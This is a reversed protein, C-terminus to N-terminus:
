NNRLLTIYGKSVTWNGNTEKVKLLYYYTGEKLGNGSWDNKYGGNSHYVENGWRNFITLFNEPYLELGDIVYTDNKGDGNPTIVNPKTNLIFIEKLDTAINNALNPDGEAATVSATNSIVGSKSSKVKITLMVVAGSEITPVTWLVTNSASSYNAIGKGASHSVYTLGAPLVDTVVVNNSTFLGNNKVLINYDYPTDMGVPTLHDSTKAISLDNQIFAPLEATTTIDGITSLDPTSSTVTVSNSLPKGAYISKAASNPTAVTIEYSVEANSPFLSITQDLNGTGDNNPLTLGTATATWKTITTGLPAIDAVKVNVAASPGTNKVSILYIVDEGPVYSIQAANKLKKVTVLDANPNLLVVTPDDSLTTNPDDSLPDAISNNNGGKAIVSAQNSYRGLNVDAQTLTHKAVVVAIAGPQITAVNAPLVSGADAGADAVVVNTLTTNGTNKVILTYNIVDGAKGGTNNATKTLTISSVQAIVIITPDDSATTSPNDSVKTLNNGKPDKASVNAQNVVTGANIDTQTLIHTATINVVAGPTLTPIFYGSSNPNPSPTPSSALTANADTVEINNLTVNGTNKLVIFYTIVDGVKTGNNNAVKTLALAASTPITTITPNDNNEATGSIDTITNGAPSKSSVNATNTVSGLDKDSQSLTYVRTYTTNGGIALSGPLVINLGLKADTLTVNSLAVNGTNKITFTYTVTNNGSNVVGSKVLAIKGKLIPTTVSASNNAPNPDMALQAADVTVSNTIDNQTYNANVTGMVLLTVSQGADVDAATTFTNATPNYTGGTAQYTVNSLGTPLSETLVIARGALVTATGINRVIIAYTINENVEVGTKDAVKTVALDTIWNPITITVTTTAKNAPDLKDTIQYNLIYVGPLTRPQVIVKGNTPDINIKPNDTSLQTIVVNGVNAQSGGNYTDNALIDMQITGGFFGLITGTDPTAILPTSTVNVTITATKKQGPNLKDEIEYVLTYTGTTTNPAVNVKGTTPDITVNASTSSVQTITVDNLTAPNGNYTDNALINAIATGGTVGNIAGNDNAAVMAPATVTVTVTATKKSGPNLKDEIQYVLNYTGAATGAAVNVKGTTPDITVKPNSTSVQSITVDNLTAPNGNYTDNVLVNAVATGGVLGNVTGSDNTAIMTPAVVTVSVSAQSIKTPDLKDVIKYVLTYVGGPTGPAVNVKGTLVDLTVKPNTTSVQALDVNALTAPSGGNFTDNILVDNVAIGGLVGSVSGSDNNAQIAGSSVTVTIIATAVKSPDLKDTISYDITYVGAPTNPAVTVQGTTVNLTIKGASTNSGPVEAITVDATTPVQSTGNYKDNTLINSIAVGGNVTNATGNDDNAQIAGTTVFVVVNASSTKTPDLKDTITYNINYTGPPTGPAVSVVGTGPTLTVNGGSNNSNETITVAAITAPSGGNFKDNALVNLLSSNGVTSNVTGSDAVAEIIGSSVIVVINATATKTPDQKDTITYNITYTGAPTGPAVNVKGTATNLTVKGLSNNSNEAITVNAITATLNANYSDNVLINAVAEGGTISNAVGNDNVALLNSPCLLPDTTITGSVVIPDCPSTHGVTTVNYTVSTNFIGTITVTKNITNVVYNAPSITGTVFASTASGGYTYVIDTIASGTCITQNQSGGSRILTSPRNVTLTYIASNTCGSANAATTYTIVSTGATVGTVEGTSANVTAVSPTASSWVGGATANALIRILGVCLDGGGTIPSINPRADINLSKSTCGAPAIYSILVSGPAIATVLGTSSVTAIATNSSGWTGGGTANALQLTSGECLSSNGPTIPTALTSSKINIDIPTRPGDGCSNTPQIYYTTNVLLNPTTFPIMGLNTGGSAATWVSYSSGNGYPINSLTITANSNACIDAPAVLLGTIPTSSLVLVYSATSTCSGNSYTNTIIYNGAQSAAINVVGTNVDISLGITSAFTSSTIGTTNGGFTPSATGGASHCYPGGYNITRVTPPFVSVTLTFPAGECSGSRPTVTYRVVGNGTLTGTINPENSGAAGGTVTGSLLTPASWSYVTGGPVGSPEVLFSHASCVSVTQASVAAIQSVSITAIASFVEACATTQSVVRYARTQTLGAYSQTTSTNAISTWTAGADTSYEWRIVTGTVGGATLTGINNVACVTVYDPTVTGGSSVTIVISSTAPGSCGAASATITANGSFAASWTMQGTAANMTGAITPSISYTIGNAYNATATYSVIGPGQCRTAVFPNFVPNTVAGNVTLLGTIEVDTPGGQTTVKYTEAGLTISPIGTITYKAPASPTTTAATYVGTLGAPLTAIAGTTTGWFTYVIPAIATSPSYCITQADTGSASTLTIAPIVSPTVSAVDNNTTVDSQPGSITATNQYPGTSKTIASVVLTANDAGNAALSGIIWKGTLYDYSTGASATHSVYTYGAPLLDTVVVNVANGPGLNKATLTFNVTSGIVPTTNDVTKTVSRDINCLNIIIPLSQASNGCDLATTVTYVGSVAATYSISTAGPIMVGDLYWQYPARSNPDASLVASACDGQAFTPVLAKEPLPTLFNSMSFGGGQQVMSVTLRSTSELTLSNPNAVNTNTFDIIFLGSSGLQRRVGVGPLTEIDKNTLGNDTTILVKAAADNLIIYAFYPLDDAPTYKRFKYAQVKTSGTCDSIPVLTALDVECNDATGSYAAVKKTSLIRTASYIQGESTNAANTGGPIGNNFTIFDGAAALTYIVTNHIAGASTYNVVTVVTNDESAVVTTQESVDNGNGRVVIYQTGLSSVPAVPNSTGDFCNGNTPSDYAASANMVAPGSTEVLSGIHNQFLYSQGANLTTIPVGNIKLITGNNIAMVSYIPRAPRNGGSTYVDGDRYYGVRFSTGVAADGFSFLSSNGKIYDDLGQGLDQDSVINRLNVTIPQDGIVILGANDIITNLAHRQNGNANILGVFRFVKPHGITLPDSNLPTIAPTTGDSKKITLNVPTVSNTAIILENGETFYVWPAPAIYHNKYSQASVLNSFLLFSCILALSKAIIKKTKVRSAKLLFNNM